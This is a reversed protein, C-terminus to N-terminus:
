NIGPSGEGVYIMFHSTNFVDASIAMGFMPTIFLDRLSALSAETSYSAPDWAPDVMPWGGIGQLAGWLPALGLSDMGDTDMCANYARRLMFLPPPDSAAAPTELLLTLREDLLSGADAFTNWDPPAPHRDLFGGCAFTYFDYCPNVTVDMNARILAAAMSCEPTECVLTGNVAKTALSGTYPHLSGPLSTLQNFLQPNNNIYNGM